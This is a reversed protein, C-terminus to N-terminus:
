RAPDLAADVVEVAFGAEILSDRIQSLRKGPLITVLDSTVRGDVLTQVIEEVSQNEYVVYTGAKLQNRLQHNRVYWEFAWDSRIAGKKYLTSAIESTTAGPDVTVVHSTQENSVPKLNDTYTKRIVVVSLILLLVVVVGIIVYKKLSLQRRKM